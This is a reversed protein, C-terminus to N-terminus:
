EPIFQILPIGATLIGLVLFLIGFWRVTRPDTAPPTGAGIYARPRLALRAGAALLSVGGLVTIMSSMNM